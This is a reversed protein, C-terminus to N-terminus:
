QEFRAKALEYALQGAADHAWLDQGVGQPDGRNVALRKRFAM